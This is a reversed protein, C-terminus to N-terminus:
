VSSFFFIFFALPLYLTFLRGLFRWLTKKNM